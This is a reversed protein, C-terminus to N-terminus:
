EGSQAAFHGKVIPTLRDVVVQLEAFREPLKRYYREPDAEKSRYLNLLNFTVAYLGRVEVPCAICDHTNTM